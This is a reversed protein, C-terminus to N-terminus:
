EYGEIMMKAADFVEDPSILKMCEYNYKCVAVECPACHLKKNIVVDFEGTPGYKRFDTPGFIALVKAGVACALHLPASDNTILLDSRKLLAALQRLNTKDVFNYPKNRMKKIVDEVINKDEGVGIFVVSARCGEILSDSLSAFGEATWRKLHSKAGPNIVVIPKVIGSEGILKAVYEDDEKPVHILTAEKPMEMGLSRLRYLHRDKKHLLSKPFKEITATRYKPGLLLPFITNRLDVILDYQLKKLKLQLRRKKIIPLHKDYIIVKFVRPDKEFIEKGSPGVMVDIRAHALNKKLTGIVPMTLVIDGVNSLTIVLIRKVDGKNIIM